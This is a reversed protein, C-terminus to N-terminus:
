IMEGLEIEEDEAVLGNVSEDAVTAPEVAEQSIDNQNDAPQTKSTCGLLFASLVVVLVMLTILKKM